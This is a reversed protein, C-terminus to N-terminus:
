KKIEPTDKTFDVDVGTEEKVVEEAAKEVITDVTQSSSIYKIGIGLGLAIVVAAAKLITGADMYNEKDLNM